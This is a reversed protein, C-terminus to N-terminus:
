SGLRPPSTARRSSCGALVVLFRRMAAAAAAAPRLAAAARRRHQRQVVVVRCVSSTGSSRRRRPRAAGVRHELPLSGGSVEPHVALRARARAAVCRSELRQGSADFAQLISRRAAKAWRWERASACRVNKPKPLASAGGGTDSSPLTQQTTPPTSTTPWCTTRPSSSAPADTMTFVRDVVRSSASTSPRPRGSRSVGILPESSGPRASAVTSRTM